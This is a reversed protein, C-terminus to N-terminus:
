NLIKVFNEWIKKIKRMEKNSWIGAFLTILEKKDLSDKDEDIRSIKVVPKEMKEVIFEVEQHYALNIDRRIKNKGWLYLYSKKM